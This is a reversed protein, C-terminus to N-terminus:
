VVNVVVKVFLLPNECHVNLKSFVFANETIIVSMALTQPVDPDMGTEAHYLVLAILPAGPAIEVALPHVCNPDAVIVAIAFVVVDM